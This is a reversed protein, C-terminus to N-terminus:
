PRQPNIDDDGSGSGSGSGNESDYLSAIDVKGERVKQAPSSYELQAEETLSARMM